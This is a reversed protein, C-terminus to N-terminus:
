HLSYMAPTIHDRLRVASALLAATNQVTVDSYWTVDSV